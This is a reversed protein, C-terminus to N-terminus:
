AVSRGGLDLMSAKFLDSRKEEPPLPPSSIGGDPLSPPSDTPTVGQPVPDENGKVIKERLYLRAESYSDRVKFLSGVLGNVELLFKNVDMYIGFSSFGKGRAVV